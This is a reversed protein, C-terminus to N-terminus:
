GLLFGTGRVDPLLLCGGTRRPERPKEIVRAITYPHSRCVPAPGVWVRRLLLHQVAREATDPDHPVTDQGGPLGAPMQFASAGRVRLGVPRQGAHLLVRLQREQGFHGAHRQLLRQSVLLLREAREEGPPGAVRPELGAAGPLGRVVGAAREGEAAALKPQGLHARRQSVDPGPQIDVHGREVRRHHDDGPLAVSPPVHGEGDIGIGGLGQLLGSAADADVEAHPIERHGTVPLPDGVRPVQLTLGAPQSAILPAQGAALLPRGVPGLRRGLHGARVAFDAVRPLIEQVAGASAQGARVIHDHDFVESDGAQDAVSVQGPRDRIAPPALEAPLKVVLALPVTAVQDHDVAPVGRGLGARRAPVPECVEAQGGALPSARGAAGPVVPVDVGGIVDKRCTTGYGPAGRAIGASSVYSM